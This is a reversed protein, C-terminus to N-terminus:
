CGGAQWVVFFAEVDSGDIGGDQNVDAAADGISWSAFFSEIDAGDVGGDQNFDAACPPAIAPLPIRVLAEGIVDDPACAGAADASRLTVVAYLVQSTLFAGHPVFSAIYAGDDFAGNGNLDVPDNERALITTGDIVAVADRLVDSADTAGIIAYHGMGDDCIAAFCAPSRATSWREGGGGNPAIPEGSRGLVINNRMVWKVGGNLPGLAGIVLWAGSPEMFSFAVPSTDAATQGPGNAVTQCNEQVWIVAGGREPDSRMAVRDVGGPPPNTTSGNIAGCISFQDGSFDMSLGSAALNWDFSKIPFFTSSGAGNSQGTPVSVDARARVQQGNHSFLATNNAPTVGAGSLSTLFGIDGFDSMAVGGRPQNYFVDALNPVSQGERAIV